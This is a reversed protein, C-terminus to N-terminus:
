TRIGKIFLLSVQIEPLVKKEERKQKPTISPSNTPTSSTAAPQTFSEGGTETTTTPPKLTIWRPETSKCSIIDSYTLNLEGIRIGKLRKADYCMLKLENKFNKITSSNNKKVCLLFTFHAHSLHLSHPPSPSM